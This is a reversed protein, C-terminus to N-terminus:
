ESLLHVSVHKFYKKKKGGDNRPIKVGFYGDSPFLRRFIVSLCFFVAPRRSQSTAVTEDPRIPRFVKTSYRIKKTGPDQDFVGQM